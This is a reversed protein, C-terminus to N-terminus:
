ADVTPAFLPALACVAAVLLLIAIPTKDLAQAAVSAVVLAVAAAVNLARRWATHASDHTAAPRVNSAMGQTFVPLGHPNRNGVRSQRSARRRASIVRRAGGGPARQHPNM